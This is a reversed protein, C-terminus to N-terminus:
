NKAQFIRPTSTAVMSLRNDRITLLTCRPPMKQYAFRVWNVFYAVNKYGTAAASSSGMTDNATPPIAVAHVITFLSLLFTAGALLMNAAHM